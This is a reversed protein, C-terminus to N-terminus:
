HESMGFIAAALQVTKEFANGGLQGPAAFRLFPDYIWSDSPMKANDSHGGREQPPPLLGTRRQGM